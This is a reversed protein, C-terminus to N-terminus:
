LHNGGGPPSFPPPPISIGDYEQVGLAFIGGPKQFAYLIALDGVAFMSADTKNGDLDFWLTHKTLAAVTVDGLMTTVAISSEDLATITGAVPLMAGYDDDDDHKDRAEMVATAIRQDAEDFYARVMVRMGAMFYTADVPTGERDFFETTPELIFTLNEEAAPWDPDLVLSDSALEVIVGKASADHAVPDEDDDPTVETVSLALPPGAADPLEGAVFVFMGITFYDPPVVSGDGAFFETQADFAWYSSHEEMDLTIGGANIARITGWGSYDDEAGVPAAAFGFASRSFEGAGEDNIARVEYEYWAKPVVDFDDFTNDETEALLSFETLNEQGNRQGPRDVPRRWLEYSLAGASDAWVLRVFGPRNKSAFLANGRGPLWGGADDVLLSASDITVTGGGAPVVVVWYLHGLLSVLRNQNHRLDVAVESESTFTLWQWTGGSYNSVGIGAETGEGALQLQLNFESIHMGELGGVHYLAWAVSDMTSTLELSDGMIVGGSYNMLAAGSGTYEQTGAETASHTSSTQMSDTPIEPLATGAPLARGDTVGPSNSDAISTAGGGGCGALSLLALVALLLARQSFPGFFRQM